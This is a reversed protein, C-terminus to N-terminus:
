DTMLAAESEKIANGYNGNMHKSTLLYVYYISSIAQTYISSIKSLIM